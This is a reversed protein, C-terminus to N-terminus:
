ICYEFILSMPPADQKFVFVVRWTYAKILYIGKDNLLFLVIVKALFDNLIYKITEYMFNYM